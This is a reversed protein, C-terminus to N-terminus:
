DFIGKGEKKLREKVKIWSIDKAIEPVKSLELCTLAGELVRGNALEMGKFVVGTDIYLSNGFSVPTAIPTHGHITYDINESDWINAHQIKTRGWIMRYKANREMDNDISSWDKPAEAHCIGVKGFDTEITMALPLQSTQECLEKLEDQNVDNHYAWNGGNMHWLNGGGFEQLAIIMMDEHNGRVCHFWPEKILRLCEMNKPGRDIL